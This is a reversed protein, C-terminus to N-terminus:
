RRRRAHTLVDSAMSRALLIPDASRAAKCGAMGGDYLLFLEAVVPEPDAVGAATLNETWTDTLWRRHLAVAAHVPHRPDPFETAANLYRCGRFGQRKANRAAVDFVLLTRAVPDDVRSAQRAHAARDEEDLRTVYAAVLADKSGFVQYLSARAVKAEALVREIGVARIGERPFLRAAADLLRQRPLTADKVM